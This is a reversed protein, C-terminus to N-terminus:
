VSSKSLSAITEAVKADAKKTWRAYSRLLTVPDHGARKAVVHVQEGKDLLITLHSARVWHFKINFGLKKAHRRFTRTVAHGDRLKTLDVEEGPDPEGPFLLAGEPLKVLSLDVEVDGTVGAVFRKAQDRYGRLRDALDADIAITRKGRATKPEKVHRGYAKTEEVSRAITLTKNDLDLDSWCLAIIENRRAGTCAAIDVIWELAHGRFGRVLKALDTEDLVTIDGTDGPNPAEADDAPNAPILKKKVASALCPRLANHLHLVTRTALNQELEIYLDDIMSGTLKQLALTGHKAKVHDLLQGYREQTRPNVLGRKRKPNADGTPTRKLLQLWQDIWDGVTIRDPAIHKGDDGTKLLRRLEIRAATLSGHFTKTYRKGNVRYRLRHTNEARDSSDIGGDGRARSTAKKKKAPVKANGNDSRETM